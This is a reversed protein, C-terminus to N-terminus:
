SALQLLITTPESTATPTKKCRMKYLSSPMSEAKREALIHLESRGHPQKPATGELVPGVILEVARDEQLMGRYDESLQLRGQEAAM